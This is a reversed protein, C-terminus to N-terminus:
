RHCSVSCCDRKWKVDAASDRTRVFSGRAGAKAGVQSSAAATAPRQRAGLMHAPIPRGPPGVDAGSNPSLDPGEDGYPADDHQVGDIRDNMEFYAELAVQVRTFIESVHLIRPCLANQSTIRRQHIKCM